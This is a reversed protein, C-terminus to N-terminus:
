SIICYFISNIQWRKTTYMVVKESYKFIMCMDFNLGLVTQQSAYLEVTGPKFESMPIIELM